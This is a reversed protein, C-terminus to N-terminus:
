PDGTLPTNANGEVGMLFVAEDKLYTLRTVLENVQDMTRSLRGERDINTTVEDLKGLERTLKHLQDIHAEIFRVAQKLSSLSM